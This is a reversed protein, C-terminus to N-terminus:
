VTGAIAQRRFLAIVLQTKDLLISLEIMYIPLAYIVILKRTTFNQLFPTGNYSKICQREMSVVKTAAIMNTPNETTYRTNQRMSSCILGASTLNLFLFSLLRINLDDLESSWTM